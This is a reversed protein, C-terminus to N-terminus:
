TLKTFRRHQKFNDHQKQKTVCIYMPKFMYVLYIKFITIWM